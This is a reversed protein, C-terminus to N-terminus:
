LVLIFDLITQPVSVFIILFVKNNEFHSIVLAAIVFLVIDNRKL